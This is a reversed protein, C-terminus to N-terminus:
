ISGEEGGSSKVLMGHKSLINQLSFIFKTCESEQANRKAKRAKLRQYTDKDQHLYRRNIEIFRKVLNTQYNSSAQKAEKQLIEESAIKRYINQTLRIFDRANGYTNLREAEVILNSVAVVFPLQDRVKQDFGTDESTMM